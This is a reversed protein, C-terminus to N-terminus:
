GAEALLSLQSRHEGIVDTLYTPYDGTFCHDTFQPRVPDRRGEGMEHRDLGRTRCARTEARSGLSRTRYDFGELSGEEPLGVRSAFHMSVRSHSTRRAQLLRKELTAIYRNKDALDAQLARNQANLSAVGDGYEGVSDDDPEAQDPGDLSM